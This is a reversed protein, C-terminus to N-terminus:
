HIPFSKSFIPYRKGNFRLQDFGDKQGHGTYSILLAGENMREVTTLHFRRPDPCFPSRWSGYTVSTRYSAPIGDTLFRKTASEIVSDVVSGFGGVGAFRGGFPVRAM